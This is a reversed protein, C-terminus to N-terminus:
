DLHGNTSIEMFLDSSGWGPSNMFQRSSQASFQECVPNESQASYGHTNGLFSFGTHPYPDLLPALMNM